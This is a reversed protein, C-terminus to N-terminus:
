RKFGDLYSRPFNGKRTEEVLLNLTNVANQQYDLPLLGQQVAANFEDWDLEQFRGDPFVWLDLLLDQVFYEDDVKRLPTTIDCYFGLITGSADLLEIIDFWEAYFHHKRATHVTEGSSLIGLGQRVSKSWVHAAEPPLITCTDLRTGDDCVLGESYIEEKKGIRAFHIVANM